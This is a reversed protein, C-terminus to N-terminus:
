KSHQFNRVAEKIFPIQHDIVVTDNLEDVKMEFYESPLKEYEIYHVLSMESGRKTQHFSYHSFVPKGIFTVGRLEKEFLRNFTYQLKEDKDTPMIFIGPNHLLNPWYPDNPPRKILLVNHNGTSDIRIPILELISSTFLRSISLFIDLPLFGPDLKSLIKTVTTIEEVTLKNQNNM